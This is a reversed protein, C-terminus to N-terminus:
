SNQADKERRVQCRWRERERRCYIWDRHAPAQWTRYARESPLSRQRTYAIVEIPKARHKVARSSAAPATSILRVMASTRGWPRWHGIVVLGLCLGLHFQCDPFDLLANGPYGRGLSGGGAAPWFFRGIFISLLGWREMFAHGRPLLDPYRSLPWVQSIPEKFKYGLWYSIWDGLAAGVAGAIWEALFSHRKGGGAGRHKGPSGLGPDAIFVACISELFAFAFAVPAAWAHHARVFDLWK